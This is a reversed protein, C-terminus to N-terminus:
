DRLHINKLLHSANECESEALERFLASVEGDEVTEDAYAQYTRVLNMSTEWAILLRDRPTINLKHKTQM